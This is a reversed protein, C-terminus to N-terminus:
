TSRAAFTYREHYHRQQTFHTLSVAPGNGSTLVFSNFQTDNLLIHEDVSFEYKAIANDYEESHSQPPLTNVQLSLRIKGDKEVKDALSRFEAVVDKKFEVIAIEYEEVHKTRNKQLASLLELRDVKVLNADM